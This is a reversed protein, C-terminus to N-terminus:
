CGGMWHIRKNYYWISPISLFFYNIIHTDQEFTEKIKFCNSFTGATVMVDETLSLFERTIKGLDEVPCEMKGIRKGRKYLIPFCFNTASVTEDAVLGQQFVL